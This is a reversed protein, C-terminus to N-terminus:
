RLSYIYWFVGEWRCYFLKKNTKDLWMNQRMEWATQTKNSFLMSINRIGVTAQRPNKPLDINNRRKLLVSPEKTMLTDSFGLSLTQAVSLFSILSINLYCFIKKLSFWTNTERKSLMVYPIDEGFFHEKPYVVRLRHLKNIKMQTDYPVSHFHHNSLLFQIYMYNIIIMYDYIHRKSQKNHHRQVLLEYEHKFLHQPFYATLFTNLVIQVPSDGKGWIFSNKRPFSKRLLFIM